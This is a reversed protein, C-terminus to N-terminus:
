RRQLDVVLVPHDSVDTPVLRAAVFDLDSTALAHDIQFGRGLWWRVPKRVGASRLGADRLPTLDRAPQNLDGIVLVPPELETAVTALHRTQLARAARDRSLHSTVVSIGRWRATIAVRPEERARRPLAEGAWPLDDHTAIGIGYGGGDLEIARMFAVEMELLKSLEAPQDVGGSRELGVDLEQLAVLEPALSRILRAIRELDVRGDRGQGHHINFSVARVREGHM